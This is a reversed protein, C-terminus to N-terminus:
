LNVYFVVCCIFFTTLSEGQRGFYGSFAFHCVM